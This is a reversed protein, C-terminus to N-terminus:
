HQDVPTRTGQLADALAATIPLGTEDEIWAWQGNPHVPKYEAYGIFHPHNLEHRV